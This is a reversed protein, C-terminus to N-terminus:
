NYKVLRILKKYLRNIKKVNDKKDKKMETTEQLITRSFYDIINDIDLEQENKSFHFWFQSDFLDFDIKQKEKYYDIVFYVLLEKIIQLNSDNYNLKDNVEICFNDNEDKRLISKTNIHDLDKYELNFNFKECLKAPDVDYNSILTSSLTILYKIISYNDEKVLNNISERYM